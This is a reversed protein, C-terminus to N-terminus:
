PCGTWGKEAQEVRGRDLEFVLQDAPRGSTSRSRPPVARCAAHRSRARAPAARTASPAGPRLTVRLSSSPLSSSIPSSDTACISHFSGSTVSTAITSSGAGQPAGAFRQWRLAREAFANPIAEAYPYLPFYPAADELVQRVSPREVLREFYAHLRTASEPFAQVTSAYFLAPAAACDAMSFAEGCIWTRAALQRDIMAYATDLASAGNSSVDGNRGFLRDFVIENMPVQVHNDFIRDWLRV